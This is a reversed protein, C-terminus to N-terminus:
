ISKISNLNNDPCRLDSPRVSPRVPHIWYVDGGGLSRQLLGLLVPYMNWPTRQGFHTHGFYFNGNQEDHHHHMECMLFKRIRSQLRLFLRYSGSSHWINNGRIWTHTHPYVRPYTYWRNYRNWRFDPSGNRYSSCKRCLVVISLPFYTGSTMTHILSEIQEWYGLQSLLYM